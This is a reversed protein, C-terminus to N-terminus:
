IKCININNDAKQLKFPYFCGDPEIVITCTHCFIRFRGINREKYCTPNERQFCDKFNVDMNYSPDLNKPIIKFSFGM